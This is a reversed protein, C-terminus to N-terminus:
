QISYMILVLPGGQGHDAVTDLMQVASELEAHSIGTGYVFIAFSAGVSRIEMNKRGFVLTSFPAFMIGDAQGATLLVDQEFKEIEARPVINDYDKCEVVIRRKNERELELDCRGQQLNSPVATVMATPFANQLLAQTKRETVKGKISSNNNMRALYERLSSGQKGTVTNLQELRDHVRGLELKIDQCVRDVNAAHTVAPHKEQRLQDAFGRLHQDLLDALSSSVAKTLREPDTMEVLLEHLTDQIVAQIGSELAQETMSSESVNVLRTHTDIFALLVAGPAFDPNAQCFDEIKRADMLQVRLWEILSTTMNDCPSASDM